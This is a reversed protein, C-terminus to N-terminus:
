IKFQKRWVKEELLKEDQENSKTSATTKRIMQCTLIKNSNWQLCFDIFLSFPQINLSCFHPHEEEKNTYKNTKIKKNKKEKRKM